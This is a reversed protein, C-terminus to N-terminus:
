LLGPQRDEPGVVTQVFAVDQQLRLDVDRGIFGGARQMITQGDHAGLAFASVEDLVKTTIQM